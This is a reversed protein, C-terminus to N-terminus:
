QPLRMAWDESRQGDPNIVRLGLIARPDLKIRALLSDPKVEQILPASLKMEGGDPFVVVLSLGPQFGEGRVILRQGSEDAIMEASTIALTNGRAWNGTVEGILVAQYDQNSQDGNLPSYSRSEPTFRWTGTEGSEPLEVVRRLIARVDAATFVGNRDADAALMRCPDLPPGVREIHQAVVAADNASLGRVDGSKAPTAVYAGAMLGTLAYSGDNGTTATAATAGASNAATLVAGAVPDGTICYRVIGSITISPLATFAGTAADSCGPKSLALPGSQAGNPVITTIQTDSVVSFQAAVNGAFRVATVGTLNAGAIAITEGPRGSAPNLSTVAPCLIGAQNVTFTQGAITMTGSRAVSGPNAAVSYNVAGNGSGSGGATITIWSANSTATWECNAATTVTVAGSGGSAAFSQSQPAISFVCLSGNWFGDSISFAGGSSQGALSQGITDEVQFIGGSSRGGGGAVVAQKLELSTQTPEGSSGEPAREHGSPASTQSTNAVARNPLATREESARNAAYIATFGLSALLLFRLALRYRGDLNRM